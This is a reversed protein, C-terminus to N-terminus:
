KVDINTGASIVRDRALEAIGGDLRPLLLIGAAPDNFAVQGLGRKGKACNRLNTITPKDSSILQPRAGM